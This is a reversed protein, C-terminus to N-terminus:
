QLLKTQGIVWMIDYKNDNKVVYIDELKIDTDKGDAEKIKEKIKAMTDSASQISEKIILRFTKPM